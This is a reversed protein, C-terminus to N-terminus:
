GWTKFAMFRAESEEIIKEWGVLEAVVRLDTVLFRILSEFSTRGTPIHLKHVTLGLRPQDAYVHMHPYPRDPTRLPHWHWAFLEEEDRYVSYIYSLTRAKFEGDYREDPIIVFRQTPALALKSLGPKRKLTVPEATLLSLDEGGGPTPGVFWQAKTVCSLSRQIIRQYRQQAAHPTKAPERV